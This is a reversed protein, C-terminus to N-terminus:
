TGPRVDVPEPIRNALEVLDVLEALEHPRLLLDQPHLAAPLVLRLLLDQPHLTDLDLLARVSAALHRIDYRTPSVPIIPKDLKLLGYVAEM